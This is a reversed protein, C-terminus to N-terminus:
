TTTTTTSTTPTSTTTDPPIYVSTTSPRHVHVCTRPKDDQYNYCMDDTNFDLKWQRCNEILDRNIRGEAEFSLFEHYIKLMEVNRLKALDAPNLCKDNVLIDHLDQFNFCTRSGM